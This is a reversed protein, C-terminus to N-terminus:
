RVLPVLSALMRKRNRKKKKGSNGHLLAVRRTVRQSLGAVTDPYWGDSRKTQARTKEDKQVMFRHTTTTTVINGKEM